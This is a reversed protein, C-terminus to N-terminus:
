AQVFPLLTSETVEKLYGRWFIEEQEKDIREIYRIYDEYKDEEKTPLDKGAVLLEYSKLFEELLSRDVQKGKEVQLSLEDEVFTINVGHGNAKELLTIINSLSFASMDNTKYLSM